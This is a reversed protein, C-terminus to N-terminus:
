ICHCYACCVIRGDHGITLFAFEKVALSNPWFALIGILVLGWIYWTLTIERQPYM